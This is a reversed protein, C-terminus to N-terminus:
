SLGMELNMLSFVPCQSFGLVGVHLAEPASIPLLGWAWQGEWLLVQEVIIGSM